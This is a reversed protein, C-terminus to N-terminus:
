EKPNVKRTNSGPFHDSEPDYIRFTIVKRIKNDPLHLSEPDYIRFTIVKRINHDPFHCSFVVNESIVGRIQPLIRFLKLVHILPRPAVSKHFFGSSSFRM